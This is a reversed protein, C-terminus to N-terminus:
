EEKKDPERGATLKNVKIAAYLVALGLFVGFIGNYFVEIAAQM